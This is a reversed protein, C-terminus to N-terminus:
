RPSRDRTGRSRRYQTPSMGTHRRLASSLHASSSFGCEYAIDTISTMGRELYRCAAEIRLRTLYKRPPEGMAARFTRVFHFSSFGAAGAMDALTIPLALNEHMYEVALRLRPDDPGVREAFPERHRSLLHVALFLAASEAYLDDAGRTAADVMALMTAEVLRDDTGLTDPLDKAEVDRQWMHAAIDILTRAPLYLHLTEKDEASYTRWRLTVGRGPATLGLRGPAYDSRHWRGDEGYAEVVARGRMALVITQADVPPLTFHDVVRDNAVRRLAVSRWGADKSSDTIVRLHHGAGLPAIEVM